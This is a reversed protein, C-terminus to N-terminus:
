LHSSLSCTNGYPRIPEKQKKIAATKVGSSRKFQHQTCGAESESPQQAGIGGLWLQPSLYRHREAPVAGARVEVLPEPFPPLDLMKRWAYGGLLKITAVVPAALVAGLIGALSAGMLVSIMVLLPHLDLADGVIRPVLINNELGQIVGMLAAIMLAYQRSELGLNHQISLLCGVGRRNYWCLSWCHASIGPCWLACRSGIRQERWYRYCSVSSLVSLLALIVQGRLYADWIRSFDALLRDVDQRYGPQTPLDSISLWIKPTDKAIYISLVFVLFGISIGSITAQAVQAALSGGGSFLPQLLDVIQQVLNQLSVGPPLNTLGVTYPGLTFTRQALDSFEAQILQAAEELNDPLLQILRSAQDFAVYGLAVGGGIAVVLLLGYVLLVAIGRGIKLRQVALSILPNLLYALISAMVLPAILSQFRWIVLAGLLLVVVAVIVKIALSWPPSHGPDVTTYALPVASGPSPQVTSKDARPQQSM